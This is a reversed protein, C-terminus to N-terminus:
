TQPLDRRTPRPRREACPVVGARWISVVVGGLALYRLSCSSAPSSPSSVDGDIFWGESLPSPKAYRSVPLTELWHVNGFCEDGVARDGIPFMDLTARTRGCKYRVVEYLFTYISTEFFTAECQSETERSLVAIGTSSVRCFEREPDAMCANCRRRTKLLGLRAPRHRGVSAKWWCSTDNRPVTAAWTAGHHFVPVM